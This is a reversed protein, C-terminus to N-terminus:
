QVLNALPILNDYGPQIPEPAVVSVKVLEDLLEDLVADRETREVFPGGVFSRESPEHQGGESLQLLLPDALTGTLSQSLRCLFATLTATTCHSGIVGAHPTRTLKGVLSECTCLNTLCHTDGPLRHPAPEVQRSRCSGQGHM